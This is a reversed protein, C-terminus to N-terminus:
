NRLRGRSGPRRRRSSSGTHPRPTETDKGHPTEKHAISRLLSELLEKTISSAGKGWGVLATRVSTDCAGQGPSLAQVFVGTVRLTEARNSSRTPVLSNSSRTPVLTRFASGKSLVAFLSIRHSEFAFLNRDQNSRASGFFGFKLLGLFGDLRRTRGYGNDADFSGFRLRVIAIEIGTAAIGYVLSYAIYGYSVEVAENDRTACDPGVLKPGVLLDNGEDFREEFLRLGYANDAVAWPQEDFGIDELAAADGGIGRYALVDLVCAPDPGIL